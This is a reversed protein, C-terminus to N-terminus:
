NFDNLVLECIQFSIAGENPCYYQFLMIAKLSGIHVTWMTFMTFAVVKHHLVAHCDQECSISVNHNKFRCSCALVHVQVQLAELIIGELHM